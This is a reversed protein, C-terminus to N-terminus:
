ASSRARQPEFTARPDRASARGAHFVAFRLALGGGVGCIASLVRVVRSRRLLSLVLSLGTLLRATRWLGGGSGTRLPRAVREGASAIEREAGVMAVLDATKAVVGFRHVVAEARGDIGSVSLVSAASSAASAVFLPPLSRRGAQWVPVATTAVLVGTYGALPVGLIGAVLGLGDAVRDLRGRGRLLAGGAMAPAAAALVWSGVSMPSSLRVVRLMNLFRAPRGLDAILLATGVAGGAAGVFRCRAVLGRLDEGGVLQAVAGLVSAAGAAGGVAFYAPVTWIWVPEKLVPRDYYTDRAGDSGAEGGGDGVEHATSGGPLPGVERSPTSPPPTM